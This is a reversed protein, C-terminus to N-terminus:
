KTIEWRVFEGKRNSPKASFGLKALYDESKRDNTFITTVGFEKAKKIANQILLIKISTKESYAFRIHASKPTMRMQAFGNAEGPKALNVFWWDGDEGSVANGLAKHTAYSLAMSGILGFLEKDSKEGQLFESVM